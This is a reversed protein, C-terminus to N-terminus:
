LLQRVWSRTVTTITQETRELGNYWGVYLTSHVIGDIFIDHKTYLLSVHLLSSFSIM